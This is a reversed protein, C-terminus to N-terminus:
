ILLFLFKYIKYKTFEDDLRPMAVNVLGNELLTESVNKDALFISGCEMSRTEVMKGSEDKKGGVNKLFELEVKVNKGVLLKRLFERAEFAGPKEFEGKRPNGLIPARINSLFIRKYENNSLNLITLSDGSHVEIVRGTFENTKSGKETTKAALKFDKWIRLNDTRAKDMLEKLGRYRNIDLETVSEHTLKAFGHAVLDAMLDVKEYLIDGIIANAQVQYSNVKLSVNRQLIREEVFIRLEQQHKYNIIPLNIAELHLKVLTHHEPLYFIFSGNGYEECVGEVKTPKAFIKALDVNKLLKRATKAGEGWVGKNASKAKEEAAQYDALFKPSVSQGEFKLNIKALGNELLLIAIDQGNISLNALERGAATTEIVFDM